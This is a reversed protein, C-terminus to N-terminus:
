TFKNEVFDKVTNWYLTPDTKRSAAHGAGEVVLKQKECVANDYLIGLMYFPVFSDKSGHIFLTPTTSRKVAEVCSADRFSYGGTLECVVSGSDVIPFSPLFSAYRKMVNGIEDYVSTFACDSIVARVNEPLDAEDCSVTFIFEVDDIKTLRELFAALEYYDRGGIRLTADGFIHTVDHKGAKIGTLMGYYKNYEEQSFDSLFAKYLKM